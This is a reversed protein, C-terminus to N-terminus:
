LQHTWRDLRKMLLIWDSKSLRRTRSSRYIRYAEQMHRRKRSPISVDFYGSLIKILEYRSTAFRWSAILRDGDLCRRVEYPHPKPWLEPDVTRSHLVRLRDTEQVMLPPPTERVVRLFEAPLDGIVTRSGCRLSRVTSGPIVDTIDIGRFYGIEMAIRGSQRLLLSCYGEEILTSCFHYRWLRRRNIVDADLSFAQNSKRGIPTRIRVLARSTTGDLITAYGIKCKVTRCAPSGCSRALQRIHRHLLPDNNYFQGQTIRSLSIKGTPAYLSKVYGINLTGENLIHSKLMTLEPRGLDIPWTRDTLVASKELRSYDLGLQDCIRILNMTKVCRQRGSAVRWYRLYDKRELGLKDLVFERLNKARVKGLRERLLFEFIQASVRRQTPWPEEWWHYLNSSRAFLDRKQETVIARATGTTREMSIVLLATHFHSASQMRNPSHCLYTFLHGADLM